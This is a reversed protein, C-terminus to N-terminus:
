EKYETLVRQYVDEFDAVSNVYIKARDAGSLITISGGTKAKNISFSVADGTATILRVLAQLEAPDVDGWTFPSNNGGFAGFNALRSHQTKSDTSFAGDKDQRAM